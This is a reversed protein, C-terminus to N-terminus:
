TEEEDIFSNKPLLCLKHVPRKLEGTETKLTVVRVLGDSGPHTVIVRGMKWTQPPTIEDKIIVLDGIDINTKATKWKPRQQLQTLYENKWRQWFHNKLEQILEITKPNTLSNEEKSPLPPALLAEGRLFHGPTLPCLDNPDDSLATIPRSNLCAEIRCLLTNLDEFTLCARHVIKRLHTKVSKVGAEWIGGFHPASPPIFHWAVKRSALSAALELSSNKIALKYEKNLESNAGVFNTANDSYINACLGRRSFFREFADLFSKTSLDSAAELHIAKTAFCVFLVIYGKTTRNCRGKHLKLTMPGAYDVGVNQFPLAIQIRQIPISGM